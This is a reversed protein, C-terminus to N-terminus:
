VNMLIIFSLLALPTSNKLKPLDSAGQIELMVIGLVDNLAANFNYDAKKQPGWSKRFKAKKSPKGSASSPRSISSGITAPTSAGSGPTVVQDSSSHTNLSPRKTPFIKPLNFAPSSPKSTVPSPAVVPTRALSAATPTSPSPQSIVVPPSMFHAPQSIDLVLPTSPISTDIEDEDDDEDSSL